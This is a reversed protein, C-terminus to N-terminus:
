VANRRGAGKSIAFSEYRQAPRRRDVSVGIELGM